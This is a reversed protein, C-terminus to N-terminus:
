LELRAGFAFWCERPHPHAEFRGLRDQERVQSLEARELEEVVDGGRIHVPVTRVLSARSEEHTLVAAALMALAPTLADEVAGMVARVGLSLSLVPTSALCTTFR